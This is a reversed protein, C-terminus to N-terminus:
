KIQRRIDRLGEVAATSYNLLVKIRNLVALLKELDAVSVPVNDPTLYLDHALDYNDKFLSYAEKTLNLGQIYATYQEIQM